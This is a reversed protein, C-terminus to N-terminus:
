RPLPVSGGMTWPERRIGGGGARSRPRTRDPLIRDFFHHVSTFIADHFSSFSHVAVHSGRVLPSGRDAMTCRILYMWRIRDSSGTIRSCAGGRVQPLAARECGGSTSEVSGHFSWLEQDVHRSNKHRHLISSASRDVEESASLVQDVASQKRKAGLPGSRDERLAACKSRGESPFHLSTHNFKHQVPPGVRGQFLDFGIWVEVM